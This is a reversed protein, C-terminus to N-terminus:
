AEPAETSAHWLVFTINCTTVSVSDCWMASEIAVVRVQMCWGYAHMAPLVPVLSVDAPSTVVPARRM